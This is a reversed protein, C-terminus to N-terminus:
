FWTLICSSGFSVCNFEPKLNDFIAKCVFFSSNGAFVEFVPAYTIVYPVFFVTDFVYPPMIHMGVVIVVTVVMVATIVMVVGVGAAVVVM